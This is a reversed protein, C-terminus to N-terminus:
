IGKRVRRCDTFAAKIKGQQKKKDQKAHPFSPKCKSRGKRNWKRQEDDPAAEPQNKRQVFGITKM